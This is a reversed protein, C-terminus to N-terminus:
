NLVTKLDLIIQDASKYIGSQKVLTKNHIKIKYTRKFLKSNNLNGLLNLKNHKYVTNSKHIFVDTRITVKNSQNKTWLQLLKISM